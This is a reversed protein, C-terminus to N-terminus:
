TTCAHLDHGCACLGLCVQHLALLAVCMVIVAWVGIEKHWAQNRKTQKKAAEQEKKKQQKERQKEQKRKEYREQKALQREREKQQKEKEKKARAAEKEREKLEKREREKEAKAKAKKAQWAQKKSSAEKRNTEEAASGVSETRWHCRRVVNFHLQMSM